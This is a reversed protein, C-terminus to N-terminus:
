RMQLYFIVQSLNLEDPKPTMTDAVQLLTKKAEAIEDETYFESFISAIMARPVKRFKNRLACLVENVICDAMVAYINGAYNNIIIILAHKYAPTEEHSDAL